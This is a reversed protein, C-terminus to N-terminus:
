KKTGPIPKEGPMGRSGAGTPSGPTGSIVTSDSLTTDGHAHKGSGHHKRGLKKHGSRRPEPKGPKKDDKVVTETVIVKREADRGADSEKYTIGDPAPSVLSDVTDRVVHHGAKVKTKAPADVSAFLIFVATILGAPLLRDAKFSDFFASM